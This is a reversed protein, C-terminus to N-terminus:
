QAPPAPDPKPLQIVPPPAEQLAKAVAEGVAGAFAQAATAVVGAIDVGSVAGRAQSAIAEAIQEASAVEPRESEALEEARTATIFGWRLAYEEARQLEFQPERFCLARAVLAGDSARQGVIMSLGDELRFARLERVRYDTNVPMVCVPGHNYVESATVAQREADTVRGVTHDPYLELVSATLEGVRVTETADEDWYARIPEGRRRPILTRQRQAPDIPPTQGGPRGNNPSSGPPRGDGGDGPPQGQGPQSFPVSGPVMIEDHGQERERERQAVGAEYDFGLVEVAWKRPIDGRDRAAQVNSFFDKVGALVIRQHWISPPGKPFAARNRDVIKSYVHREVHRKVDHRDSTITNGMFEMEGRAGENGPDPTVQEPIRLLRMALKRGILKRKPASLLEDLKPTIIEVSLRHDGVLVGTRSASRVQDTLNDIEPQQAPLKDSGQKAIVIYNTGGQLLSYDMINLLRKAELLAFNATMPPRPYADAGKPMTSRHVLESNLKYLTKGASFMDTDNYDVEIRDTFIAAIVPQEDRMKNRKAASTRPNFFEDLWDKLKPDTVDYALEGTGFVDMSIVRINEAPLVGVMPMTLQAQVRRDTGPPTFNLRSRTFLQITNIQGSILYERLLEKLVSDLNMRYAMQNFLELTSQDPHLNQMGDRYATAIVQGIVAGIDDDADAIQRALKIEEVVNSPTRFPSRALMNSGQNTAYLQFSSPTGFQLAANEVWHSMIAERVANDPLDTRNDIIVSDAPPPDGSPGVTGKLEGPADVADAM